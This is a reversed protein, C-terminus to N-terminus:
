YKLEGIIKITIGILNLINRYINKEISGTTQHNNPYRAYPLIAHCTQHPNDLYHM